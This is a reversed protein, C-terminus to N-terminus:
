QDEEEDDDVVGVVGGLRDLLDEAFDGDDIDHDDLVESLTQRLLSKFIM